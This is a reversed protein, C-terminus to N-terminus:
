LGNEDELLLVAKGIIGSRIGSHYRTPIAEYYNGLTNYVTVSIKNNGQHVFSTIEWEWPSATLVGAEQGNIQVSATASVEELKLVMRKPLKELNVTTHYM